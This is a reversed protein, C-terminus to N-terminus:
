IWCGEFMRMISVQSSTAVDHAHGNTLPPRGSEPAKGASAKAERSGARQRAPVAKAASHQLASTLSSQSDSRIVPLPRPFGDEATSSCRMNVRSDFVDVLLGGSQLACAM